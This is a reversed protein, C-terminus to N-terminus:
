RFDLSVNIEIEEVKNNSLILKCLSSYSSFSGNKIIKLENNSLDLVRLTPLKFMEPIDSLGLYTCTVEFSNVYGDVTSCSCKAPCGAGGDGVAGPVTM